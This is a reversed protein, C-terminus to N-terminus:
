CETPVNGEEIFDFYLFEPYFFTHTPGALEILAFGIFLDSSSQYYKGSGREILHSPPIKM